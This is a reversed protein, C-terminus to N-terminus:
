LVNDLYVDYYDFQGAVSFLYGDPGDQIHVFYDFEVRVSKDMTTYLSPSPIFAIVLIAIILVESKRLRNDGEKNEGM